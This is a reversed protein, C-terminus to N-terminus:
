AVYCSGYPATTTLDVMCEKMFLKDGTAKNIVPYEVTAKLGVSAVKVFAHAPNREALANNYVATYYPTLVQFRHGNKQIHSQITTIVMNLNHLMQEMAKLPQMYRANENSIVGSKSNSQEAANSTKRGYPIMGSQSIAYLAWREHPILNLYTSTKPAVLQIKIMARLFQAESKSKVANWIMNGDFSENNKKAYDNANRIIHLGCNGHHADFSECFRIM